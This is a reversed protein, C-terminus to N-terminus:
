CVPGDKGAPVYRLQQVRELEERILYAMAAHDVVLPKTLGYLRHREDKVSLVTAKRGLRRQQELVDHPSLVIYILGHEELCCKADVGMLQSQTHGAGRRFEWYQTVDHVTIKTM